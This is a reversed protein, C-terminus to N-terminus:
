NALVCFGLWKMNKDVVRRVCQLTSTNQRLTVSISCGESDADRCYGMRGFIYVIEQYGGLPRLGPATICLTTM